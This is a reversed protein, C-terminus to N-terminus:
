DVVRVGWPKGWRAFPLVRGNRRSEAVLDLDVTAKVWGPADM